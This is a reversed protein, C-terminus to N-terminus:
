PDPKAAATAYTAAAAQIHDRAESLPNLIQHQQSSHHLSAATGRIRERAKSGGYATPAARLFLFFFLFDHEGLM